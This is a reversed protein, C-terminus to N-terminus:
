YLEKYIVSEKNLISDYVSLEIVYRYEDSIIPLNLRIFENESKLLQLREFKSYNDEKKTLGLSYNFKLYPPSMLYMFVSHERITDLSQIDISFKITNVVFDAIGKWSEYDIHLLTENQLSVFYYRKPKCENDYFVISGYPIGYYYNDSYIRCGSSDFFINFGNMSDNSYNRSIKVKGNDYYIDSRGNLVGAKYVNKELLRNSLDYVLITDDFISDSKMIGVYIKDNIQIRSSEDKSLNCSFFLFTLLFFLLLKNTM